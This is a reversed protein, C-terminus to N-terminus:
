EDIAKIAAQQKDKLIDQLEQEKKAVFRDLDNLKANMEEAAKKGIDKLDPGLKDVYEKIAKKANALEDKCEQIVRKNDATIDEVLNNITNDLIAGNRDSTPTVAHHGDM